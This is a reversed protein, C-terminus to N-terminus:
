VAVGRARDRANGARVWTGEAGCRRVLAPIFQTGGLSRHLPVAGRRCLQAIAAATPRRLTHGARGPPQMEAIGRPWECLIWATVRSAV